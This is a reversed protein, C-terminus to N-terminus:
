YGKLDFLLRSNDDSKERMFDIKKGGALPKGASIMKQFRKLDMNYEKQM